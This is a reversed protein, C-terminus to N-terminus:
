TLADTNNQEEKIYKQGIEVFKSLSTWLFIYRTITPKTVIPASFAM